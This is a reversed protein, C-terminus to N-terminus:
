VEKRQKPVGIGSGWFVNTLYQQMHQVADFSMTGCAQTELHKFLDTLGVFSKDCDGTRGPCRYVRPNRKEPHDMPFQLHAQLLLPSNFVRFCTFCTYGEDTEPSAEALHGTTLWAPQPNVLVGTNDCKRLLWLISHHNLGPAQPCIGNELHSM